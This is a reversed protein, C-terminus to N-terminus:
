SGQERHEQINARSPSNHILGRDVRITTRYLNKSRWQISSVSLITLRNKEILLVTSFISLVEWGPRLGDQGLWREPKYEDADDGYYDKRKHMAYTSWTVTQGKPIFIPSNGDEGGGLPLTTDVVAERWNLPVVPHVRLSENLVARLYKLEKLQEFTPLRGDLIDIDERLKNWVDTRKSLTFWVNSLLSATTDRGALLVNLLESRIANRDNTHRVLHDLFVYRTPDTSKEALLSARKALGKEVYYNVFDSIQTLLGCDQSSVNKKGHVYEVDKSFQKRSLLVSWVGWRVNSAMGLDFEAYFCYMASSIDCVSKADTSPKLSACTPCM